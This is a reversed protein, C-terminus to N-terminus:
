ELMSHKGPWICGFVGQRHLCDMSCVLFCKSLSFNWISASWSLHILHNLISCVTKPQSSNYNGSSTWTDRFPHCSYQLSQFPFCAWFSGLLVSFTLFLNWPVFILFFFVWMFFSLIGYAWEIGSGNKDWMINFIELLSSQVLARWHKVM